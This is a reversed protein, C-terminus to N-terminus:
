FDYKYKGRLGADVVMAPLKIVPLRFSDGTRDIWVQLRENLKKLLPLYNVTHALNMQEYPDDNLNFLLWECNELAIYKFGDNTVIGRWVAPM